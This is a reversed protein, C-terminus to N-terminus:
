FIDDNTFLINVIHLLSPFLHLPFVSLIEPPFKDGDTPSALVRNAFEPKGVHGWLRHNHDHINPYDTNTHSAIVENTFEPKTM